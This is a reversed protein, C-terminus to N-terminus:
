KKQRVIISNLDKNIAGEDIKIKSSYIKYILKQWKSETEIEDLFLTFDLNADKFKKKFQNLDKSSISELYSNVQNVDKSIKYKEVEIKKIKFQILNELSQKKIKNINEQSVEQNALFLSRLIKNKIEYNTIIENEVKLIIQNNIKSFVNESVLLFFFLYVFLSFKIRM